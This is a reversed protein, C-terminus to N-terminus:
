NYSGGSPLFSGGTMKKGGRPFFAGGVAKKELPHYGYYPNELQVPHFAPSDVYIQPNGLQIPVDYSSKGDNLRISGSGTLYSTALKTAVPIAIPAIAQGINKLTDFFGEGEEIMKRGRKKMGTGSSTYNDVKNQLYNQGANILAPAVTKVVSKTIPSGSVVRVINKLTDFIGEGKETIGMLHNSGKMLKKIMEEHKKPHLHLEFRGGEKFMDPKFVIKKGAKLKRIHESTLDLRHKKFGIGGLLSGLLSGVLGNAKGGEEKEESKYTRTKVM